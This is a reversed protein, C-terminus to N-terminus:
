RGLLWAMAKAEDRFVRGNGGTESVGRGMQLEGVATAVLIARKRFGRTLDDAGVGSSQRVREADRIPALRLDLLLVHLARGVRDFLEVLRAGDEPRTTEIPEATRRFIM